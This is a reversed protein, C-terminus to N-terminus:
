HIGIALLLSGAIKLIERFANIAPNRFRKEM